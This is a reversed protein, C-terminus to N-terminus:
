NKMSPFRPARALSPSCTFMDIRCNYSGHWSMCPLRTLAVIAGCEKGVGWCCLFPAVVRALLRTLRRNHVNLDTFESSTKKELVRPTPPPEATPVTSVNAAHEKRNPPAFSPSCTFLTLAVIKYITGRCTCPFRTLAAIASCKGVKYNCWVGQWHSLLLFPTVMRCTLGAVVLLLKGVGRCCCMFLALVLALVMQSRQLSWYNFNDNCNRWRFKKTCTFSEGGCIRSM